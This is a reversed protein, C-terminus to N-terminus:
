LILIGNFRDIKMNLCRACNLSERTAVEVKFVAALFLSPTALVFQLEQPCDLSGDRAKLMKRSRV